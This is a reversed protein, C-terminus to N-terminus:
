RAVPRFNERGPRFFWLTLWQVVSRLMLLRVIKRDL